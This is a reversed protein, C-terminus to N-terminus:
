AKAKRKMAVLYKGYKYPTYFSRVYDIVKILRPVDDEYAAPLRDTLFIKEMFIYAPKEEQLQRMTKKLYAASHVQEAPFIRMHVPVASLFPSFYFFPKRDAQMLIKVEFSSLVAAKEDPGTLSAILNADESFDSEQNYFAKLQDDSTFDRENVLWENTEGLSNVPLKYDPGFKMFMNNFYGRRDPFPLTVLPDVMPNRSFNFINPYALVQHNTWLCFGAFLGLCLLTKIRAHASIRELIKQLWFCSVFIFPLGSVYYSTVATRAVYYHYLGLGYVCLVMVLVHRSHIRRWFCLLGLVLISALYVLPVAYGMASAWFYHYHLSESYPITGHGALFYIVYEVMNYWYIKTFVHQGVVAYFLALVLLPVSLFCGAIGLWEVRRPMFRNRLDPLWCILFLYVYYAAILYVGTDILSYEALACLFAAAWLLLRRATVLHGWLCLFFFVDFFNRVVTSSPYTFVFPSVGTHFMQTKIGMLMAIMVIPISKLWCRLFVYTAVYYVISLHVLLLFVSEYGFGGWLKSGFGMVIPIGVGYQSIIDVYPLCGKLYGWAPAMFYDWHHFQDGVYMRAIVARPDPVYIFLIIFIVFGTDMLLRLAPRNDPHILFAYLSVLFEKVQKWFIKNLVAAVMLGNFAGQAFQPQYDYIVLKYSASLLLGLLVGEVMLFLRSAQRLRLALWQGVGACGMFLFFTYLPKLAGLHWAFLAAETAWILALTSSYIILNM